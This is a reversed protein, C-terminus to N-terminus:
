FKKNLVNIYRSKITRNLHLKSSLFASIWRLRIVNMQFRDYWNMFYLGTFLCGSCATELRKREKRDSVNSNPIFIRKPKFCAFLCIYPIFRFKFTYYVYIYQKISMLKYIILSFLLYELTIFNIMTSAILSKTQPPSCFFILCGM